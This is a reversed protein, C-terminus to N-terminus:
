RGGGAAARELVALTQAATQEWSYRRLIGGARDLVRARDPTDHVLTVIAAALDDPTNMSVFYAADGYIERAVQTDLVVIPVGASLAELPPLGFGEYESLFVFVRARTYHDALLDDTIWDEISVRAAVGAQRAVQHLDEFPHTRNAGVIALRAAPEARLVRPFARILDGLRRRTFISGVFLVLPGDPGPAAAPKRALSGRHGDVADCGGRGLWIVEIRDPAVGLQDILERRSFNSLTLVVAARRASQTALLRRRLGERWRFWEPHAVFSVDPITLVVPSHIALPASSAPSFFVDLRDGNVAPALRLQEWWAGSGGPVSRYEFAGAPASPLMRHLCQAGADASAPSYLVFRHGTAQPLASWARCLHAVYRGVGTPADFLERADIGIRMRM